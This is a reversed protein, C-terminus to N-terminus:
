GEVLEILVGGTSRPHLFAVSHGGAGPRPERDITEIGAAVLRDLAARLDPVRLAVHHLGPGRRALFRAVTSDPTAPEILELRTGAEGIFAVSVGQADLRETPSGAAGTLLEFVPMARTISAVAIGVHDMPLKVIRM